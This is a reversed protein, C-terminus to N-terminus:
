KLNPFISKLVEKHLDDPQSPGSPKEQNKLIGIESMVHECISSRLDEPYEKLLDTILNNLIKEQLQNIRASSDTESKPCCSLGLGFGLAQTLTPEPNKIEDSYVVARSNM